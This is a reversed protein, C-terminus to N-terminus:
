LKKSAEWVGLVTIVRHRAQSKDAIEGTSKLKKLCTRIQSISLRTEVSLSELSTITQGRRVEFGKWNQDAHNVKLLLHTFLRCVNIDDYWEWELMTRHLKIWGSM